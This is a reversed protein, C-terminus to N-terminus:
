INRENACYNQFSRACNAAMFHKLCCRPVGCSRWRGLLFATQTSDDAVSGEVNSSNCQVTSTFPSEIRAEPQARKSEYGDYRAYCHSCQSIEKSTSLHKGRQRPPPAPSARRRRESREASRNGVADSRESHVPPHCRITWTSRVPAPIDLSGWGTSCGKRAKKKPLFYRYECCLCSNRRSRMRVIIGLCSTM